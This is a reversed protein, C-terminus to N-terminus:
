PLRRAALKATSRVKGRKATVRVRVDGPRAKAAPLKVTRKAGAKTKLSWRKLPKGGQTAVVTVKAPSATLVTTRLPARGSGGFAPRRLQARRMLGCAVREFQPRRQFRRGDTRVLASRRVDRGAGVPVSVKAIYVGPKVGKAKWTFSGTRRKFRAVRKLRVMRKATAVRLVDATFRAKVRRQVAFRLGGGKPKVSVSKFGKRAVCATAGGGGAGGGGGKTPEPGANPQNFDYTYVGRGYTAVVLLDPNGPKTRVTSVPVTPLNRGLRSYPGGATDTSEFVGLDTAVVLHGDHVTSWNAPADPLNGSVDTFTAGADTSKFVHGTGVKSTDEGLAGPFAWNRGYGGLTVYVTRPDSRDMRISTIYRSPLGQAKAIHWGDPSGAKGPKDGGVNTAIGNAFPTGQTITDCYGCYGVYTSAAKEGAATRQTFTVKADFTGTATYNVVRVVYTGAQPNPIAARESTTGGNASSAVVEGDRLVYLDWDNTADAWSVDVTMAANGADPALTVEHDDYTGPVFVGLDADTAPGPLTSGGATYAQDPTRTGTPANSPATFSLTDVASLANVPDDAAASASADGPHKQTGLDYVEAWTDGSTDPGTTTEFVNRGGIVLHKADNPDMEFPTSFQADTLGAPAIDTWTKGGDKTVSIAGAVYEEYAVKSDDPDVATFFGDGGYVTYSTGDPDIKGEGNDQLGMYVTGDKAMAADYPQLTHMGLNSGSRTGPGSEGWGDNSLEGNPGVHQRYVGGDNAAFLTVGGNGDPLWLGAHQDPHTTYKPVQGGPATPCVPLGNTANLITCAEGAYYRGVTKFHQPTTGDLGTPSPSDNSWVEELGFALRTPVGGATQRTPDPQVWLNYWAQVGPCYAVIPAECATAIASGTTVPDKLQDASALLKWSGGFDTSVYLGNFVEPYPVNGRSEEVDLAPAGANFKDADQVMAYVINHNQKAGNAIGLEIRGLQSQSATPNPVKAFSGPAGNASTYLGNGPSQPVGKANKKTGARWGVAAMVAGPKPAGAGGQDQVVVDTVMNALFCNPATNPKGACDGVPLAVNEFAAGGNTSRFLGGGTAAYVENPDTPDVALKFGLVGDPVGSGHQWTAGGDTSRYVGLGARSDGGFANDGTLVFLTGGAAPSWAVSAVVQTPLGDAVSTWTAGGDASKWVGGNSAAAYLAGSGDRAFDVTRGALDGLGLRTSGSTEDYETRDSHLPTGGFASWDGGTVPLAARERVAARYAGRKVATGPAVDQAERSANALALERFGEPHRPACSGEYEAQPGTFVDQLPGSAPRREGEGEEREREEAEEREREREEAGEGERGPACAEARESREHAARTLIVGTIALALFLLGLVPVLVRRSRFM